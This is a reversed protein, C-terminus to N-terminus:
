HATMNEDNMEISVGAPYPVHEASSNNFFNVKNLTISGSCSLFAIATLKMKSVTTNLMFIDSSRDFIMAARYSYGQELAAFGTFKLNCITFNKVCIVLM